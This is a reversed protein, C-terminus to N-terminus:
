RSPKGFCPMLARAARRALPEARQEDGAHLDQRRAHIQRRRHPQCLPRRDLWFLSAAAFLRRADPLRAHHQCEQRQPRADRRQDADGRLRDARVRLGKLNTLTHVKVEQGDSTKGFPKVEHTMTTLLGEDRKQVKLPEDAVETKSRRPQQALAPVSSVLAAAVALWATIRSAWLAAFIVRSM